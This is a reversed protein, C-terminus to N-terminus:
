DIKTLKLNFKVANNIYGESSLRIMQKENDNLERAVRAPAGVILVGDPFKKGETILSHAGVITDRGIQAGNLITSGIGILSNDGITCGHLMVMHGVTVGEGVSLPFGPDSHLVSGDQINTGKGITMPENDARMTVGFWVSTNQALHVNGVVVANDAIWVTDDACNPAIGDLDYKM